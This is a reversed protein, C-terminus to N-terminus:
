NSEANRTRRLKSNRNRVSTPRPWERDVKKITRDSMAVLQLMDSM